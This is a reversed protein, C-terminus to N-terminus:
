TRRKRMSHTHALLTKLTSNAMERMPPYQNRHDQIPLARHRLGDALGDLHRMQPIGVAAPPAPSGVTEMARAARRPSTPNSADM